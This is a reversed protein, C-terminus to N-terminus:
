DHLAKELFVVLKKKCIEDAHEEVDKSAKTAMFFGESWGGRNTRHGYEIYPAYEVPNSVELTYDGNLMSVDSAHWGRRLYGSKVPTLKKSKTLVRLGLEKTLSQMFADVKKSDLKSLKSMDSYDVSM